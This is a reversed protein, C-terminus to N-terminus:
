FISVQITEEIMDNDILLPFPFKTHDTTNERAVWNKAKNMAEKALLELSGANGQRLRYDWRVIKCLSQEVFIYGFDLITKDETTLHRDMHNYLLQVAVRMFGDHVLMFGMESLGRYAGLDRNISMWTTIADSTPGTLISAYVFNNVTQLLTLGTKFGDLKLDILLQLGDSWTRKEGTFLRPDQGIMDGLFVKWKTMLQPHFFPGFKELLTYKQKNLKRGRTPLLKLSNAAAGYINPNDLCVYGDLRDVQKGGFQSGAVISANSALVDDFIRICDDVGSFVFFERQNVFTLTRDSGQGTSMWVLTCSLGTIKTM